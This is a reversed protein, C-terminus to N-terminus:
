RRKDLDQRWRNSVFAHGGRHRKVPVEFHRISAPEAVILPRPKPARRFQEQERQQVIWRFAPHWKSLVCDSAVKTVDAEENSPHRDLIDWAELIKIFVCNIPEYRHEASTAAPASRQKREAGGFAM